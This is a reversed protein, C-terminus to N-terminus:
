LIHLDLVGADDLPRFKIGIKVRSCARNKELCKNLISHRYYAAFPDSDAAVRSIIDEKFEREAAVGIDNEGAVGVEEGQM